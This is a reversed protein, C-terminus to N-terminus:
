FIQSDMISPVIKVCAKGNIKETTLKEKKELYEILRHVLESRRLSNPGRQIIRRIEIFPLSRHYSEQYIWDILKQAKQRLDKSNFGGDHLDIASKLYDDGYEIATKMSQLDITLSEDQIYALLGAIRLVNDPMKSAHDKVLALGGDPHSADEVNQAFREWEQAAQPSLTMSQMETLNLAVREKVKALIQEIKRHFLPLLPDNNSSVRSVDRTGALPIPIALLARALFGSTVAIGDKKKMFALFPARQVGLAIAIKLNRSDYKSSARDRTVPDGDWIKNLLPLDQFTAGSLINAADSDFIAGYPWGEDLGKFLAASTTDGYLLRTRRPRVPSGLILKSLKEKLISTDESNQTAKTIEKEVGKQEARHAKEEADFIRLAKQDSDWNAEEFRRLSSTIAKEIRTKSEGSDAITIMILSVPVISGNPRKCQIISQCATSMVGLVANRVMEVSTQHEAALEVIMEHIHLKKKVIPTGNVLVAM